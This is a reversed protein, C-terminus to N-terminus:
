RLEGRGQGPWTPAALDLDCWNCRLTDLDHPLSAPWNRDPSWFAIGRSSNRLNRGCKPCVLTASLVTGLIAEERM